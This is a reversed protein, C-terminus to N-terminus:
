HDTDLLCLALTDLLCLLVATPGMAKLPAHLIQAGLNSIAFWTALCAESCLRQGKLFIDQVISLQIQAGPSARLEKAPDPM